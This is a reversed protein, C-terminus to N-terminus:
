IPTSADSNSASSRSGATTCGRGRRATSRLDAPKQRQSRGGGGRQRAPEVGPPDPGIRPAVHESEAGCGVQGVPLQPIGDRQESVHDALLRGSVAIWRSGM